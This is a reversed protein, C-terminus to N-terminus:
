ATGTEPPAQLVVPQTLKEPVLLAQMAERTMIGLSEAVEAIPAGTALATKAILAAREYGILPNLATVLTVSEAVRKELLPLNAEIGEVCHERLTICAQTLHRVSKHISWGMIPEFANLQLQGSESAMTITVDNGVVEFAVQNVVEPIVPNVKGPMISSGAQRAPLRIDGFGAQPGSSLLRLDNCTKSLKVAVRKLVGSLQVFAGTDQTAEVLNESKVVPVGSVEALIPIVIEAYGHPANIGTGIATAGLNIEQILARAERLRQEDEKLMVAFASFEQGLTMPVADQLQTRGIKLIPAFEESKREFAVRLQTMADLLREIGFWAALRLATPYVDNTSQSANVHDNPHLVDYRGHEFGLHELARNALVENANMNTSTGAGGQIVDVVFQEHLEGAILEDCALIIAGARKRDLVGLDANAKAAAKKVMAMARILDPWQALTQGSIPFNEVARATHVGWYAALPIEKEGLFDHERRVATTKM